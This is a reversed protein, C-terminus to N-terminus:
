RSDIIALGFTCRALLIHSVLVRIDFLDRAQQILGILGFNIEEGPSGDGWVVCM